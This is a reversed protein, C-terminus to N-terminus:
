KVFGELRPESYGAAKAIKGNAHFQFEGNVAKSWNSRGVENLAGQMDIGAALGVGVATWIIDCLADALGEPYEVKAERNGHKLETAERGIRAFADDLPSTVLADGLEWVEELMCGLAHSFSPKRQATSRRHWLEISSIDITM